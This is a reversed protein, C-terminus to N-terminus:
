AARRVVAERVAREAMAIAYWRTIEMSSRPDIGRGLWRVSERLRLAQAPLESPADPDHVAIAWADADADTTDGASTATGWRLISADLVRFREPHDELVPRLRQPTLGRDVDEAILAVLESLRLAPHPHRRLAAEARLAISNM